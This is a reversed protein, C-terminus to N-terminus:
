GENAVISFIEAKRKAIVDLAFEEVARRRGRVALSRGVNPNEILFHIADCLQQPNQADVLCGDGNALIEPIIGSRTGVCPVGCAMAELLVHADHEQHDDRIRAPLVFIDLTRLFKAVEANPVPPLLELWTNNQMEEQLEEDMSDRYAGCGLLKLVVDKKGTRRLLRVGEILDEIGKESDFRGCYGVVIRGNRPKGSEGLMREAPSFLDVDVGLHHCISTNEQPFSFETRCLESVMKSGAIIHDVKKITYRAVYKKVKGTLGKKCHFTNKKLTCVIKSSRSFISKYIFVQLFILSWPNYEVNIIDPRFRTLGLTLSALIYQAKSIYLARYALFLHRNANVVEYRHDRFILVDGKSPLICQVDCVAELKAINKQNESELYSHSVVVVRPKRLEGIDVHGEVWRM